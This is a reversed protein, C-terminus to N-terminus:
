TVLGILQRVNVVRTGKWAKPFHRLNGTALYDADAEEACELFRNDDDDTCVTVIHKPRVLLSAARIASTGAKVDKPELGFRPRLLVEEYEALIPESVCIELTRALGLRLVAAPIGLPQLFASVVVNTDLVVRIM